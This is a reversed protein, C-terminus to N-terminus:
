NPVILDSIDKKKVIEANMRQVGDTLIINEKVLEVLHPEKMNMHIILIEMVNQVINRIFHYKAYQWAFLHIAITKKYRLFDKRNTVWRSRFINKPLIQEQNKYVKEQLIKEEKKTKKWCSRIWNNQIRSRRDQEKIRLKRSNINRSYKGNLKRKSDSTKPKQTSQFTPININNRNGITPLELTKNTIQLKQQHSQDDKIV